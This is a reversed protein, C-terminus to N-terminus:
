NRSVMATEYTVVPFLHEAIIAFYGKKIGVRSVNNNNHLM